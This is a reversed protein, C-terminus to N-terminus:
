ASVKSETGIVEQVADEVASKVAEKVTQELGDRDLELKEAAKTEIAVVRNIVATVDPLKKSVMKAVKKAVKETPISHNETNKAKGWDQDFVKSIRGAISRDRIIIGVERRHDLEAARLSQSGLFAFEGDRLIVRVHLRLSKLARVKLSNKRTVEGIVRVTVGAKAREELLKIMGPDSIEPDYIWLSKKARQIHQALEQRANVPSVVLSNNKSEFPQRTTDAKFLNSAERVLGANKVVVGFSRSRVDARAYNFGLLYLTQGDVILFKGHYRILDDATRAVTAGAALLRTELARLTHAGGRNTSAILAQVAVGRKIADMLERELEKLDFRFIAIEISKKAKHVAAVIPKIGDEPQVLLKM